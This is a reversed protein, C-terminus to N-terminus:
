RRRSQDRGRSCARRPRPVGRLAAHHGRSLHRRDGGPAVRAGARRERVRALHELGPRRASGALGRGPGERRGLRLHLLREPSGMDLLSDESHTDERITTHAVEFAATGAFREDLLGFDGEAAYGPYLIGIRKFEGTMEIQLCSALGVISTIM